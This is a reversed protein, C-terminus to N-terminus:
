KGKLDAMKKSVTQKEVLKITKVDYPFNESKVPSIKRIKTKM